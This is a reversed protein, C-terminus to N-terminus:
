AVHEILGIAREGVTVADRGFGEGGPQTTDIIVLVQGPQRDFVDTLRLLRMLCALYRNDSPHIPWSIRVVAVGADKGAM